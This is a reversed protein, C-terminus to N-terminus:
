DPKIGAERIIRAYKDHDRQILEASDGSVAHADNSRVGRSEKVQILNGRSAGVCSARKRHSGYLVVATRRSKAINV